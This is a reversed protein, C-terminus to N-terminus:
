TDGPNRQKESGGGEVLLRSIKIVHFIQTERNHICLLSIAVIEFRDLQTNHIFGCSYLVDSDAITASCYNLLNSYFVQHSKM